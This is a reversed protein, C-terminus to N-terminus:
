WGEQKREADILVDRLLDLQKGKGIPLVRLRNYTKRVWGIHRKSHYETALRLGRVSLQIGTDLDGAYLHAQGKEIIYRGQERMPRFPRLRDTEKYIEM